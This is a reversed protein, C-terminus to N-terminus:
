YIGRKGLVSKIDEFSTMKIMEEMELKVKFMEEISMLLTIHKLSDWAEINEITTSVDIQDTSIELVEAMITKLKQEM